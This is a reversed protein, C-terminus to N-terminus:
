VLAHIEDKLDSNKWSNSSRNYEIKLSVALRRALELPWTSDSSAYSLLKKRYINVQSIVIESVGMKGAIFDYIDNKETGEVGVDTIQELMKILAKLKSKKDQAIHSDNDEVVELYNKLTRHFASFAGLDVRFPLEKHWLGEVLNEVNRDILRYQINRDTSDPPNGAAIVLYESDFSAVYRQLRGIDIRNVLNQVVDAEGKEGGM